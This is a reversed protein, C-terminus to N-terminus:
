SLLSSLEWVTVSGLDSSALLLRKGDPSWRMIPYRDSYWSKGVRPPLFAIRRGSATDYLEVAGGGAFSATERGDPSVAAVAESTDAGSSYDYFPRAAPTPARNMEPPNENGWQSALEVSASFDFQLVRPQNGSSDLTLVGAHPFPSLSGSCSPFVTSFRMSLRKGDGSWLLDYYRIQLVGNMSQANCTSVPTRIGEPWPHVKDIVANDVQIHALAKASSVSYITLQAPVHHDPTCTSGYRYRLIAIRQGNPSWAVDVLCGIDEKLAFVVLAQKPSRSSKTSMGDAAALRFLALVLVAPVLSMKAARMISRDARLPLTHLPKAWWPSWSSKPASQGPLDEIRLDDDSQWRDENSNKVSNGKDNTAGTYV